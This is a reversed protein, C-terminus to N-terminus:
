ICDLDIQSLGLSGGRFHLHAGNFGPITLRGKLDIQRAAKAQKAIDADSRHQRQHPGIPGLPPLSRWDM